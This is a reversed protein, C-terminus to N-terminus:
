DSDSGSSGSDSDSGSDDSSSSDAVSSSVSVPAFVQGPTPITSRGGKKSSGGKKGKSKASSSGGTSKRKAPAKPKDPEPNMAKKVFSYLQTLCESSMNNLDLEIEEQNDKLEPMNQKIIEIVGMMDVEALNNIMLSLEQKQDQTLETPKKRGSSSSATSKRSRKSGGASSQSKLKLGCENCFNGSGSSGVRRFTLQAVVECSECSKTEVSSEDVEEVEQKAKKSKSSSSSSKKKKPKPQEGMVMQPMMPMGALGAMPGMASMGPMGAMGPMGMMPFAMPFMPMAAGGKQQLMALQQTMSQLCTALTTIQYDMARDEDNSNGSKGGRRSGGTSKRRSSSGTGSSSTKTNASGPLVGSKRRSKGTGVDEEDVLSGSTKHTLKPKKNPIEEPEFIKPPKIQRKPRRDATSIGAASETVSTIISLTNVSSNAGGSGKTLVMAPFIKNLQISFHHQLAKGLQHITHTSPNYTFCNNLMLVIDDVFEQVQGYEGAGLKNEITGLDMPKKIIDFYDPAQAVVPDVPQLFPWASSHRQLSALLQKCLKTDTSSIKMSRAHSAKPLAAKHTTSETRPSPEPLAFEFPTTTDLAPFSLPADAEADDAPTSKPTLEQEKMENDPTTTAPEAASATFEIDLHQPPSLSPASSDTDVLSPADGSRDSVDGPLENPSSPHECPPSLPLPSMSALSAKVRLNQPVDTFRDSPIKGPSASVPTVVMQDELPPPSPHTTVTQSASTNITSLVM